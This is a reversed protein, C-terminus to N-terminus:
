FFLQYQFLRVFKKQLVVEFIHSTGLNRPLFTIADYAKSLMLANTNKFIGGMYFIYPIRGEPVKGRRKERWILLYVRQGQTCQNISGSIEIEWNDGELERIHPEPDFTFRKSLLSLTSTPMHWLFRFSMLIDRQHALYGRYVGESPLIEFTQEGLQYVHKIDRPFSILESGFNEQIKWKWLSGVLSLSQGTRCTQGFRFIDPPLVEMLKLPSEVPEM